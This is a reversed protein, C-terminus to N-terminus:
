MKGVLFQNETKTKQRRLKKDDKNKQIKNIPLAKPRKHLHNINSKLSRCTTCPAENGPNTRTDTHTDTHTDM